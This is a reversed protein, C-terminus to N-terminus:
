FREVEILDLGAWQNRYYQYGTDRYKEHAAKM